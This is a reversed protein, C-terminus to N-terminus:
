RPVKRIRQEDGPIERWWLGSWLGDGEVRIQLLRGVGYPETTEVKGRHWEIIREFAHDLQAVEVEDGVAYHSAGDLRDAIVELERATALIQSTEANALADRIRDNAAGVRAFALYREKTDEGNM